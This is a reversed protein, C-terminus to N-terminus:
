ELGLYEDQVFSVVEKEVAKMKTHFVAFYIVLPILIGLLLLVLVFVMQAGMTSFNGNIILSKKRVLITTGIVNDKAVVLMKPGRNSIKYQDSFREELKKKLDEVDINRNQVSIKM